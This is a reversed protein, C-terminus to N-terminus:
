ENAGIDIFDSLNTTDSDPEAAQDGGDLADYYADIAKRTVAALYVRNERLISISRDPDSRLTEFADTSLTSGALGFRRCLEDVAQEPSPKKAASLLKEGFIETRSTRSRDYQDWEVDRWITAFLEVWAEEITAQDPDDPTTTDQM